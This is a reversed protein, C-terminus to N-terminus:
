IYYPREDQESKFIKIKTKTKLIDYMFDIFMKESDYHSLEIFNLGCEVLQTAINHSIESTIITDIKKDLMYEVINKDRGGAGNSLIIRNVNKNNLQSVGLAKTKLKKETLALLSKLSCKKKLIVSYGDETPEILELGLEGAIYMGLSQEARDINTHASYIAIDNAILKQILMGNYRDTNIQYVPNFILPHHSIILNCNKEIAEDIVALKVDLCILVSGIKKNPEGIQLGSNDFDAQLDLPAFTEVINSIEKLLM